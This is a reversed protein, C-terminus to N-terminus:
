ECNLELRYNANELDAPSDIDLVSDAEIMIPFIKDGSISGSLLTEKRIVEIDGTQFYVDPLSQRPM